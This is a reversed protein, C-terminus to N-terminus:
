WTCMAIHGVDSACGLHEATAYLGKVRGHVATDEGLRGLVRVLGVESRLTDSGDVDNDAVEVGELRSDGALTHGGSLSDLLDVNATNGEKARSGLVVLADPHKAVWGVVLAKELTVSGLALVSLALPVKECELHPLM